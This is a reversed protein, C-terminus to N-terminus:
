SDALIIERCLYDNKRLSDGKLEFRQATHVIRGLIADTATSNVKMMDYWNAVLLQSFIITPKMGHCDEMLEMYDLIQQLLLGDRLSMGDVRRTEILSRWVTGHWPTATTQNNSLNQGYSLQNIM